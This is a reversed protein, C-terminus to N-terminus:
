EMKVSKDSPGKSKSQSLIRSQDGPSLKSKDGTVKSNGTKNQSSKDVGSSKSNDFKSINQGLGTKNAKSENQADQM